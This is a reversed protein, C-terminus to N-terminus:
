LSIIHELKTPDKSFHGTNNKINYLIKNELKLEGYLKKSVVIHTNKFSYLSKLFTNKWDDLSDYKINQSYEEIDYYPISTFTLDCDIIGTYDELKCNYLEINSFNKSLEQLENFTDANPEIGIYTGNPYISKFGLMRGGFGACPDLVIPSDVDGLIHQYISAALIPKFFSITYRNASMGQILSKMSFDFSKNFNNLGIRNAIIKSLTQDDNWVQVPSQKDKFSSNWYSKFNSKLYSIGANSTNNNFAGDTYIKSYDFNQIKSIINIINETQPPYPFDPHFTRLFKLFLPVYFNLKNKGKYKIFREIYEKKSIKQNYEITYDPTYSKSDVIHKLEEIDDFLIDNYRIRRFNFKSNAMIGNKSYDNIAGNITQITIEELKNPHYAIGDIEVVLNIDPLYFDFLKGKYLFRRVYQIDSSELKSEFDDELSSTRRPFTSGSSYNFATTLESQLQSTYESTTSRVDYKCKYETPTINHKQLHTNSLKKLYVGCIECKIRNKSDLKIFDDRDKREFYLKWLYKQDPYQEIYEYPTINHKSKLHTTFCGSKNEIDYTSWNCYPCRHKPKDALQILNYYQMYDLECLNHKERLHKTAHGGYNNVDYTTFGCIKCEIKKTNDPRIKKEGRSKNYDRDSFKCKNSCYIRNEAIQNGCIKCNKM